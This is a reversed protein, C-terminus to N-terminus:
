HLFLKTSIMLILISLLIQWPALVLSLMLSIGSAVGLIEALDDIARQSIHDIALGVALPILFSLSM